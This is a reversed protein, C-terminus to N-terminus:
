RAKRRLMRKGARGVTALDSRRLGYFQLMGVGFVRSLFLLNLNSTIINAVLTTLAAGMAGLLPALVFLMAVNIVCSITL